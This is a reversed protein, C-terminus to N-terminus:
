KGRLSRLRLVLQMVRNELEARVRRYVEPKQRYPDEIKWEMLERPTKGPLKMGSLNVVIDHTDATRPDYWMPVHSSVDVNVEAMIAVTEPAVFQVPSLGASRAVLVDSGYHNAFGEAMPSRCTNGVCVFLVRKM